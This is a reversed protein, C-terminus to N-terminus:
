RDAAVTRWAALATRVDEDDIDVHTVMRVRRSVYTAGVGLDRLRGIAELADLGVAETDVFVMNTEVDAPDIAGPLVSAVGEALRRAREHDEHLRNPGEELAVLGAAAVVGAQRWAGGFLIKMRRAERMLEAPGCVLSGIPAGLAKSVCFMLTDAEAAIETVPVGSAVAANFIRAGDLHVPLDHERAVKAIGRLDDMATVRGGAHGHTDEVAVIDVIEVDEPDPTLAEQVQEPTIQGRRDGRLGRFAMGSLAASSMVETTSVHATAEALVLHGTGRFHLRLGIQNAMTGTPVYLAAEKGVVEAAREQLRNVTPDDGFWDDGVEADAMARRMAPSPTTVTDSRLDVRYASM